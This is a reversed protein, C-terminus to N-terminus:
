QMFQVNDVCFEGDVSRPEEGESWAPLKWEIHWINSADAIGIEAWSKCITTPTTPDMEANQIDVQAHQNCATCLPNGLADTNDGETENTSVALVVTGAVEEGDYMTTVDGRIDFCVGKYASADYCNRPERMYINLNAGWQEHGSGSLCYEGNTPSVNEAQITGAGDAFVAWLGNRGDAVRAFKNNDDLDDILPDAGSGMTCTPPATTGGSGSSGGSPGFTVGGSSTGGSSTGGSTNGGSTPAVM